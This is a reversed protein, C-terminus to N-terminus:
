LWQLPLVLYSPLPSHGPITVSNLSPGGLIVGSFDRRYTPGLMIRQGLDGIRDEKERKKAAGM